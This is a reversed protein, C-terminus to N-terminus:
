SDVHSILLRRQELEGNVAGQEVADRLHHADVSTPIEALYNSFRGKAEFRAFATLVSPHGELDRRLALV